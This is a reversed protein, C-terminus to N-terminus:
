RANSDSCNLENGSVEVARNNGPCWKDVSGGRAECQNAFEVRSSAAEVTCSSHESCCRGFGDISESMAPAETPQRLCGVLGILATAFPLAALLQVHRQQQVLIRVRVM